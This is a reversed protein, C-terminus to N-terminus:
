SANVSAKRTPNDPVSHDVYPGDYGLLRLYVRDLFNVMFAYEDITRAFVPVKEREEATAVQSYFRGRHVLRDRCTIFRDIEAKEPYFGIEDFLGGLVDAFTTRNLGRMMSYVNQRGTNPIEAAVLPGKVAKRLAPLTADFTDEDICFEGVSATPLDLYVAKLLELAVALKVGRMELFDGEVKGDLYAFITGRDLKWEDRRGRYTEYTSEVFRKTIGRDSFDIAAVAFWPSYRKTFRALHTRARLVGADDYEDMYILSVMSGRAVSLIMCIDTVVQILQEDSIDGTVTYVLLDSTNFTAM